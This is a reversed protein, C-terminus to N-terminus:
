PELPVLRLSRLNMPHWGEAVPHVTLTAHGASAIDLTGNLDTGTFDTYGGTVPATGQLKEDGLIVEFKGSAVAAIEAVIKFKGPRDVDFSWSATGAPDTWYGINDKGGGFEYQLAGRLEAESARLGVSGDSGQQIPIMAVEPAGKIKLEVTSSIPDPATAPVEVVVGDATAAFKLNSGDVLLQASTVTNKLGPVTLKGDAPWNFVHLYLTTEDGSIKKTCRGWPLSKFPSATTDYIADGNVKM